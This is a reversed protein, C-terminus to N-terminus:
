QLSRIKDEYEHTTLIGRERLYNLAILDKEKNAQSSPIIDFDLKDPLDGPKIEERPPSIGKTEAKDALDLFSVDIDLLIDTL